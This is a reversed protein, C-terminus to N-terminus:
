FIKNIAWLFAAPLALFRLSEFGLYLHTLNNPECIAFAPLIRILCFPLLNTDPSFVYVQDSWVICAFISQITLNELFLILLNSPLFYSFVTIFM